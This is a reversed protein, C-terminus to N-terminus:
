RCFARFNDKILADNKFARGFHVLPIELAGIPVSNGPSLSNLEGYMRKLAPMEPLEWSVSQHQRMYEEGEFTFLPNLIKFTPPRIEGESNPLSPSKQTPRVCSALGSLYLFSNTLELYIIRRMRRQERMDGMRGQLAIGFYTLVVGTVFSALTKAWETWTSPTIKSLADAIRTLQNVLDTNPDVVM